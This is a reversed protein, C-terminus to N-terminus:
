SRWGMWKEGSITPLLYQEFFARHQIIVAEYTTPAMTNALEIGPAIDAASEKVKFSRPSASKKGAKSKQPSAKKKRKSEYGGDPIGAIAGDGFFPAIIMAIWLLCFVSTTILGIFDTFKEWGTLSRSVTFNIEDWYMEIEIRYQKNLRGKGDYIFYHAGGFTSWEYKGTYGNASFLPEFQELILLPLAQRDSGLKLIEERARSIPVTSLPITKDFIVLALWISNKTAFVINM